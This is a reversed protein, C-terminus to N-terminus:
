PLAGAPPAVLALQPPGLTVPFHTAFYRALSAQEADDIPAGWGKMKKVTKEWQAATLRQQTLYQTSHCIACKATLTNVEPGPPFEGRLAQAQTEPTSTPPPTATPPTAATTTTTPPTATPPAPPPTCAVAFLVSM